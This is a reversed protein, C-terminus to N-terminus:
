DMGQIFYAPACVKHGHETKGGSQETWKRYTLCLHFVDFDTM